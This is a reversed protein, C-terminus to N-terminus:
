STGVVSPATLINQLAHAISNMCIMFSDLRDNDDLYINRKDVGRNLVHYLEMDETYM